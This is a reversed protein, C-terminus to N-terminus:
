LEDQTYTYRTISSIYITSTGFPKAQFTKKETFQRALKQVVLTTLSFKNAASNVQPCSMGWWLCKKTQKHIETIIIKKRLKRGPLSYFTSPFIRRLSSKWKHSSDVPKGKTMYLAFLWEKVLASFSSPIISRLVSVVKFNTLIKWSSQWKIHQKNKFRTTTGVPAGRLIVTVDYGVDSSM